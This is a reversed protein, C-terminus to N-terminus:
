GHDAGGWVLSLEVDGPLGDPFDAIRAGMRFGSPQLEEKWRLFVLAAKGRLTAPWSPDPANIARGGDSCLPAPFRMLVCDKLGGAAARKAEDLMARWDKDSLPTELLAKVEADRHVRRADRAAARAQSERQHFRAVLQRFGAASFEAEITPPSAHPRTALPPPPPAPAASPVPREPAAERPGRAMAALLDARTAMGVLKGDRVVPARKIKKSDFLAAVARIDDNEGVAIVPQSMLQRAVSRGQELHRVYEASMEQGGALVSLWWDRREQREPLHETLLDGDSVIGIVRNDADVVPVGSIRRTLLLRAIERAPTEPGVSIAPQSMIDSIKM